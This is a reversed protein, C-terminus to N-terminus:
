PVVVPCLVGPVSGVKIQVTGVGLKTIFATILHTVGCTVTAGGSLYSVTGAVPNINDNMYRHVVVGDVKVVASKINAPTLYSDTLSYQIQCQGQGAPVTSTLMCAGQLSIPDAQAVIAFTCLSLSGALKLARSGLSKKVM